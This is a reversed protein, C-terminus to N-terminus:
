RGTSRRPAPSKRERISTARYALAVVLLAAAAAWCTVFTWPAAHKLLLYWGSAFTAVGLWFLLAQWWTELRRAIWEPVEVLWRWPFSRLFDLFDM